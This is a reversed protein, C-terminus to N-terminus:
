VNEQYIVTIELRELVENWIHPCECYAINTGFIKNHLTVRLKPSGTKITEKQKDTIKKATRVYPFMKAIKESKM